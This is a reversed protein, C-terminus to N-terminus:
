RRVLLRKQLGSYITFEWSLLDYQNSSGFLCLLMKLFISNSSNNELPYNRNMLISSIEKDLNALIAATVDPAFSGKIYSLNLKAKM